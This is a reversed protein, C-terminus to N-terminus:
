EVDEGYYMKGKKGIFWVANFLIVAATLELLCVLGMCIIGNVDFYASVMKELFSHGVFVVAAAYAAPTRGLCGLIKGPLHLNDSIYASVMYVLVIAALGGGIVSGYRGYNRFMIDAHGAYIMYAWIPSVIFYKWPNEAAYTLLDYKRCIMGALVYVLLYLAIDMDWIMEYGNQVIRMGAVSLVFMCCYRWTDTKIVHELLSCILEAALMCFVLRKAEATVLEPVYQSGILCLIGPIVYHAALSKMKELFSSSEPRNYGAYFLFAAPLCSKILPMLHNDNQRIGALYLLLFIGAAVTEPQGTRLKTAINGRGRESYVRSTYWEKGKELIIAGIVAIAIEVLIRVWERSNGTLKGRDLVLNVYGGLTELSVLHVCMVTLSIRGLYALFGEPMRTSLGYILLCGSIGVIASLCVDNLFATVFDTGCYGQFIGWLLIGQAIAYHYWRVKELVQKERVWYGIWLFFSALMGSQISFPLWIFHRTVMAVSALGAAAFGFQWINRTVHLLIQCLISAFFMAPLFWIAGIRAGIEITGFKTITGSAFFGRTLDRVMWYTVSNISLDHAWYYLNWMDLLLVAACTLFYPVMLRRFRANVFATNFEKKKLTYGGLLFFMVLHVGFVWIVNVLGKLGVGTHGIIILLIAIGKANDIWTERM